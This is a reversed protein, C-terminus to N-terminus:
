FRSILPYKHPNEIIDVTLDVDIDPWFFHGLSLEEVNLIAGVTQDKFWPFSDYSLFLEKDDALLWIGYASIHTIEAKSIDKGHASLSM